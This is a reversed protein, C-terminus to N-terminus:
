GRTIDFTNDDANMSQIMLPTQSDLIAVSPTNASEVFASKMAKLENLMEKLVPSDYSISSGGM